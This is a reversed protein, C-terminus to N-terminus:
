VQRTWEIKTAKLVQEAKEIRKGYFNHLHYVNKYISLYGIFNGTNTRAYVQKGLLPMM